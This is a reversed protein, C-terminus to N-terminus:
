SVPFIQLYQVGKVFLWSFLMYIRKFYMTVISVQCLWPVFHELLPMLNRQLACIVDFASCLKALDGMEIAQQGSQKTHIM